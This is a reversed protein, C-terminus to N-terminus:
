YAWPNLGEVSLVEAASEAIGVLRISLARSTSSTVVVAAAAAAAVVVLAEPLVEPLAEVRLGGLGDLVATREGDAREGHLVHRLSGLGLALGGALILGGIGLITWSIWRWDRDVAM